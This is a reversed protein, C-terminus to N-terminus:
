CAFGATKLVDWQGSTESGVHSPEIGYSPGALGIARIFVGCPPLGGFVGCGRCMQSKLSSPGDVKKLSTASVVRL